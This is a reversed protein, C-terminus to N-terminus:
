NPEIKNELKTSKLYQSPPMNKFKKFAAIFTNRNSFGCEKAIAELTINKFDESEMMSCCEEIRRSNVLDLFTTGLVKNIHQSLLYFPIGSDKSMEHISYNKQLYKKSNDLIEKLQSEIFLKKEDSIRDIELSKSDAKESVPELFKENPGYLVNPFFLITIGSVLILVGGTLHILDFIIKEDTSWFFFLYPIVIISFSSLYIKMWILWEKGFPNKKMSFLSGHKRIMRISLIWYVAILLTRGQTYFFPSFIRSQNFNVFTLPNNIESQILHVKEELGTLFLVPFFDILYITVPLFHLLDVWKFKPDSCVKQVYLYALPAFLLGAINGTRYLHPISIHYGTYILFVLFLAYSLFLYSLGILVNAKIKKIGFSILIISVMFGFFVSIIYIIGKWDLSLEM